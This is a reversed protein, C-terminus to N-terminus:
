RPDENLPVALQGCGAGIDVGRSWRVTVTFPANYLTRVFREVRDDDPRKIKSGIENYPIVNVKCPLEGILRILRRADNGSDNIGAMLVYEFTPHNRTKQYYYRAASLLEPLPYNKAVPMIKQRQEQRASNLSIALKFRRREDAFRLIKPIIGVTSVTIKRAGLSIGDPHNLLEAAQMVNRYNLFPEGMGMFVVNTIRPESEAQLLLFQDLIEGPTLNRRFGMRGTACFACDAACGVQTSLCVTVRNKERMWVAEIMEGTVLQFLYKRTSDSDSGSHGVKTLTHIVAESELRRRLTKPINRMDRFAPVKRAYIWNFLQRARFRPEGIEVLIKELAPVDMGVLSVETKKQTVPM